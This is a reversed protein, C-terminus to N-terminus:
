IKCFGHKIAFVVLEATNRSNTKSLLNKRHGEITSGALFLDQAIEATTRGKCILQLVEKERPTLTVTEGKLIIPPKQNPNQVQSLLAKTVVESFYYDKNYVEEIAELLETSAMDKLLYGNAGVKMVQAILREDNHMSLLLVKIEPYQEKLKITTEFGDLVPMEMDLLIVDIEQQPLQDLLHQGHEAEINLNIGKHSSIIFRLGDRFLRQDDCIAVNIASM